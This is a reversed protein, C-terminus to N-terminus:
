KSASSVAIVAIRRHRQEYAELNADVRSQSVSDFVVAGGGGDLTQRGVMAISELACDVAAEGDPAAAALDDLAAATASTAPKFANTAVASMVMTIAPQLEAALCQDITGIESPTFIAKLVTCSSLVLLAVIPALRTM